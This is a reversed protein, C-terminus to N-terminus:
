NITVVKYSNSTDLSYVTKESFGRSSRVRFEHDQKAAPPFKAPRVVGSAQLLAIGVVYGKRFGRRCSRKPLVHESVLKPIVPKPVLALLVLEPVPVPRPVAELVPQVTGPRGRKLCGETRLTTGSNSFPHDLLPLRRRCFPSGTV